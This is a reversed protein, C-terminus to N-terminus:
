SMERDHKMGLILLNTTHLIRMKLHVLINVIIVNYNYNVFTIANFLEILTM